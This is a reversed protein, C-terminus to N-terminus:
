PTTGPLRLAAALDRGLQLTMAGADYDAHRLAAAACAAHEPADLMAMSDLCDGVPGAEWSPVLRGLGRNAIQLAHTRAEVRDPMLLQPCGAQIADLCLGHGGRGVFITADRLARAVDIPEVEHRITEPLPMAPGVTSVWIVPWGRQRLAAVLPAAMPRDFPMYVFIRPGSATPWDPPTAAAIGTMPGYFRSDNRGGTPDLEPWSTLLPAAGGLLEALGALMPAGFHRCVSRVVRDAVADARAM